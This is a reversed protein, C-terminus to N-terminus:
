AEVRIKILGHPLMHPPEVTESKRKSFEFGCLEFELAEAMKLAVDLRPIRQGTEYHRISIEAVGCKEALEKRSMQFYVRRSRLFRHFENM